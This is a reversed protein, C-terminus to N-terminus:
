KYQASLVKLNEQIKISVGKILSNIVEKLSPLVENLGDNGNIKIDIIEMKGNITSTIKGDESTITDTFNTQFDILKKQIEQLKTNDM